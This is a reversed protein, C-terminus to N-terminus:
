RGPGQASTDLASTVLIEVSHRARLNKILDNLLRQRRDIVLRGKIERDVYPLDAVQGQRSLKWVILVYYGENTRIPFSPEGKTSASAVRWLEVPLLTNQTRYASDVHALMTTPQKPDALWQELADRWTAGRLVSARFNNAADRDRFLVFSLLAVDATLRFESGHNGYYQAIERPSIDMSRKTYVEDNLLANIALQRRVEDMRARVSEKQDLGRRVAEDYLMENTVWRQVYENLEAPSISRSSDLQGRVEELTLTRNDLRAVLTASPETKRCGPFWLLLLLLAFVKTQRL